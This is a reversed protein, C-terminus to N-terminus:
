WKVPWKSSILLQNCIGAAPWGKALKERRQKKAKQPLIYPTTNASSNM